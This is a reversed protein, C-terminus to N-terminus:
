SNGNAGGRRIISRILEEREALYEQVSMCRINTIFKELDHVMGAMQVSALPVRRKYTRKGAGTDKAGFANKRADREAKARAVGIRIKQIHEESLPKYKRGTKLKKVRAYEKPDSKRLAKMKKDMKGEWKRKNTNICRPCQSRHEAATHKLCQTCLGAERAKEVAYQRVTMTEVIM